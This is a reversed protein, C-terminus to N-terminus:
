KRNDSIKNTCEAFFLENDDEIYKIIRAYTANSRNIWPDKSSM